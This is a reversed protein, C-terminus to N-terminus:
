KTPPQSQIHVELRALRSLISRVTSTAAIARIRRLLQRAKAVQATRAYITSLIEAVDLCEQVAGSREFHTFSREFATTAEPARNTSALCHGADRLCNGIIDDQGVLRAAKEARTLTRLAMSFRRERRLAVGNNYWHRGVGIPDGIRDALRAAQAHLSRARTYEQKKEYVIGLNGLTNAELQQLSHARAFELCQSQYREALHLRNASYHVNGINGLCQGEVKTEGYRRAGHLARQQYRLSASLDGDHRLCIGLNLNALTILPGNGDIMAAALSSAMAARALRFRNSRILLRGIIHQRLAVSADLGENKSWAEVVSQWHHSSRPASVSDPDLKGLYRSSLSDFLLKTNGQLRQGSMQVFPNSYVRKSIDEIMWAHSRSSSHEVLHVRSTKGVLSRVTPTIDFHDSCSYGAILVDTHNGASFISRIAPRIAAASQRSAIHSLTVYIGHKDSICGHLKVVRPVDEDWNAAGFATPKSLLQYDRGAIAGLRELARELLTDYNTTAITKVLGTTLLRALFMHYASPDDAEFM